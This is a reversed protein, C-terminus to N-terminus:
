CYMCTNRLVYSRAFMTPMGSLRGVMCTARLAPNKGKAMDLIKRVATNIRTNKIISRICKDGASAIVQKSIDDGSRTAANLQGVQVSTFTLKLLEPLVVDAIASFDNQLSCSM